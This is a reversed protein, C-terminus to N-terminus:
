RQLVGENHSQEARSKLDPKGANADDENNESEFKGSIATLLASKRPV